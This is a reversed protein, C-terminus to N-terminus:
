KSSEPQFFERFIQRAVKHGLDAGQVVSHHYHIGAYVRANKVENELENTSRIEHVTNTVTSSVIFTFNPKGFYQKLSDALAGTFCGHASPYEPHAPTNVLPTWDPDPVTEPNGDIDGKRIATVPRWFSYTYKANWCGILADASSTWVLAFLRATEAADLGHAGALNRLARAYQVSTNETWFLAIETQKPTRVASNIAGLAKVQNYDDVWETSSLSFAPEPLFQAASRMTFPVMKGMWPTVPSAFGPPTPIWVGPTPVSPYTYPVNAGRGDNARMAIIQNAAATGAAVGDDKGAEPLAALWGNYTATLAPSQDPFHFQM